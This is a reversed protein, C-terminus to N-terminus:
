QDSAQITTNDGTFVVMVMYDNVKDTNDIPTINIIWDAVDANVGAMNTPDFDDNDDDDNGCSVIMFSLALLVILFLWSISKM